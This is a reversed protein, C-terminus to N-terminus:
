RSITVWRFDRDDETLAWRVTASNHTNSECRGGGYTQVDPFVDAVDDVHVSSYTGPPGILCRGPEGRRVTGDIGSRAGEGEVAAGAGGASRLDDRVTRVLSLADAHLHGNGSAARIM